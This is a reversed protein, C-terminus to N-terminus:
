YEILIFGFVLVKISIRKRGTMTTFGAVLIANEHRSPTWNWEKIRRQGGRYNWITM